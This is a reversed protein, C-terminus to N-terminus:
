NKFGPIVLQYLEKRQLTKVAYLREAILTIEKWRVNVINEACAFLYKSLATLVEGDSLRMLLTNSNYFDSEAENYNKKGTFKKEACPGAYCTVVHDYIQLTQLPSFYGNEFDVSGSYGSHSCLGLYGEASSPIITVKRPKRAYRLFIAAVAHGAEHYATSLEKKEKADMIM